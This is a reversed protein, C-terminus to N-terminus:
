DLDHREFEVVFSLDNAYLRQWRAKMELSTGSNSEARYRKVFRAFL